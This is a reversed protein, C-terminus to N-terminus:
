GLLPMVRALYSEFADERIGECEFIEAMLRERTRRHMGKPRKWHPGLRRELKAQRRWSRACADESQSTYAVQQCTRCAFRRGRMYLVAVRRACAPCRFWPRSGGYNCATHDLQIHEAIVMGDFSYDLTVRGDSVRYGISGAPEDGVHWHWGGVYGTHLTGRRHWERVDIRCCHEAKLRRGPRGAGWRMGGKAM